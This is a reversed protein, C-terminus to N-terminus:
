IEKVSNEQIEYEISQYEYSCTSANFELTIFTDIAPSLSDGYALRANIKLQEGTQM